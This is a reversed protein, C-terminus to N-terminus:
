KEQLRRRDESAERYHRSIEQRAANEVQMALAASKATLECEAMDEAKRIRAASPDRIAEAEARAEWAKRTAEVAQNRLRQAEAREDQEAMRARTLIAAEATAEFTAVKLEAHSRTLAEDRAGLAATVEVRSRLDAPQRALEASHVENRIAARSSAQSNEQLHAQLELMRKQATVQGRRM